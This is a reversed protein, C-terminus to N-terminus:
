GVVKFSTSYEFERDFTALKDIHNSEVVELITCDTFSFKTDKQNRFRNWSAEFTNNGVELVPMSEKILDETKSALYLSKSRVLVVTVTEDFVYESTIAQGHKGGVIEEMISVSKEHNTDKAVVFAVLLSTDIFIL